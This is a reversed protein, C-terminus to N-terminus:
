TAEKKAPKLTKKAVKVIDADYSIVEYTELVDDTLHIEVPKGDFVKISINTALMRFVFKHNKIVREYDDVVVMRVIYTDDRKDLQVSVEKEDNFYGSEVMHEGLKRAEAEDVQDTYYLEGKKFELRTGYIGCGTLAVTTVFLLATVVVKSKM